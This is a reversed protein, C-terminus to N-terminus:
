FSHQLDSNLDFMLICWCNGYIRSLRNKIYEVQTELDKGILISNFYYELIDNKILDTIESGQQLISYNNHTKNMNTLNSINLNINM